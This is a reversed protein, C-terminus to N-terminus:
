ASNPSLIPLDLTISQCASFNLEFSMPFSSWPLIERQGRRREDGIERGEFCSVYFLIAKELYIISGRAVLFAVFSSSRAWGRKRRGERKFVGMGSIDQDMGSVLPWKVFPGLHILVCLSQQTRTGLKEGNSWVRGGSWIDIQQWDKWKAFWLM